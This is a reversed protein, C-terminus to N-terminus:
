SYAEVSVGCHGKIFFPIRHACPSCLFINFLVLHSFVHHHMCGRVESIPNWPNSIRSQSDMGLHILEIGQDDVFNYSCVLTLVEEEFSLPLPTVIAAHPRRSRALHDDQSQAERPLSFQPRETTGFPASGGGGHGLQHSSHLAGDKESIIICVTQEKMERDKPKALLSFFLFSIAM